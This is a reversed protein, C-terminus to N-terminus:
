GKRTRATVPFPIQETNTNSPLVSVELVRLGHQGTADARQVM